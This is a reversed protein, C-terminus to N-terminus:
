GQAITSWSERLRGMMESVQELKKPDQDRRGQSLHALCFTYIAQLREAIQGQELDLTNLLHHIIEEARRLKMHGAEIQGEGMAVGAQHLFRRAGDYLMVVLQEPSATLVANARYASPSTPAYTAM